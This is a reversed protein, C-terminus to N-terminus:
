TCPVTRRHEAPPAHDVQRRAVALQGVGGRGARRGTPRGTLHAREALQQFVEAVLHAVEPEDAAEAPVDGRVRALHQHESRQAGEEGFLHVREPAIQRPAAREPEREIGLAVEPHPRQFGLEAHAVDGLREGVLLLVQLLAAVVRVPAEDHGVLERRVGRHRRERARSRARPHEQDPRPPELGGGVGARRRDEDHARQRGRERVEIV